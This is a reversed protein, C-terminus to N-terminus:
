AKEPLKQSNWVSTNRSSGSPDWGDPLGLCTDTHWHTVCPATYFRMYFCVLTICHGVDSSAVTVAGTSWRTLVVKFGVNNKNIKWRSCSTLSNKIAWIYGSIARQIIVVVNSLRWIIWWYGVGWNLCLSPSFVFIWWFKISASVICWPALVDYYGLSQDNPSCANDSPM